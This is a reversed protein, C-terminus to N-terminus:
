LGNRLAYLSTVRKFTRNKLNLYFDHIGSMNSYTHHRIHERTMWKPPPLLEECVSLVRSARLLVREKAFLDRRRQSLQETATLHNEHRM